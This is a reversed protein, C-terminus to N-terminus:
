KANKVEHCNLDQVRLQDPLDLNQGLFINSFNAIWGGRPGFLTAAILVQLPRPSTPIRTDTSRQRLGSELSLFVLVAQEARPPRKGRNSPDLGAM